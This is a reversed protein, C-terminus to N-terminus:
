PLLESSKIEGQVLDSAIARLKRNTHHSKRKLLMFAEDPSVSLEAHLFGKAQEIVARSRLATHLNDIMLQATQYITTNYIGAGGQAAFLVALDHSAGGFATRAESYLSLAGSPRRDTRLPLMLCSGFRAGAAARRFAPWRHDADMDDIRRPENFHLAEVAPGEALEFQLQHLENIRPDSAAFTMPQQQGEITLAAASAGPVLEVALRTLRGLVMDDDNEDELLRAADSIHEALARNIEIL